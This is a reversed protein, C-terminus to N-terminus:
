EYIKLPFKRHLLNHIDGESVGELDIDIKLKKAKEILDGIELDYGILNIYNKIAKKIYGDVKKGKLKEALLSIIQQLYASKILNAIRLSYEKIKILDGVSELIGEVDGKAAYKEAVRLKDNIEQLLLKYDNVDELFPYMNVYEFIAHYNKTALIRQFDMLIQAKEKYEKAKEEYGPFNDLIKAYNLAKKYDGKKLLLKINDNLIKAFNIARKYEETETLFPFRKILIFFEKFDKKSLKENLLNYLQKENFLAQIIPTKDPVGRFPKLLERAKEVNNEEIVAKKALNFIKKWTEEM